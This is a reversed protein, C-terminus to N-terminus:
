EQEFAEIFRSLFGRFAAMDKPSFVGFVRREIPDVRERAAQLAERGVETMHLELVNPHRPHSSRTILGQQEMTKLLIMMAQPTVLCARALTAATIASQQDLEFLAVYQSPSLGVSKLAASKARVMAQEARKVLMGLREQECSPPLRSKHDVSKRASSKEGSLKGKRNVEM